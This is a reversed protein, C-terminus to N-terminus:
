RNALWARLAAEEAAAHESLGSVIAREVKGGVFPVRVEVEGTATRMSGDGDDTIEIVGSAELMAGYHDAEIRFETRRRAVDVESVEVWTLREPDVVKRVASNLDGVFRYRVRQVVKSPSHEQSLLMPDGLKPLTALQALYAPDLVAAQVADPSAPVRQELRFRM